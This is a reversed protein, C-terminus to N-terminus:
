LPSPTGPSSFRVANMDGSSRRKTRRTLCQRGRDLKDRDAAAPRRWRWGKVEAHRRRLARHLTRLERNHPDTPEPRSADAAAHGANSGSPRADFSRSAKGRRPWETSIAYPMLFTTSRSRHDGPGGACPHFPMLRAPMRHGPPSFLANRMLPLTSCKSQSDARNSM